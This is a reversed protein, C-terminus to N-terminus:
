LGTGLRGSSEWVESLEPPNSKAEIQPECVAASQLAGAGHARHLASPPGWAPRSCPWVEVRAIDKGLNVSSGLHSEHGKCSSDPQGRCPPGVAEVCVTPAPLEAPQLCRGPVGAARPGFRARPGSSETQAPWIRDGAQCRARGEPLTAVAPSPLTDRHGGLCCPNNLPAECPEEHRYSDPRLAQM